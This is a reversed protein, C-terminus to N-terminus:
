WFHVKLRKRQNAERIWLSRSVLVYRAEGRMAYGNQEVGLAIRAHPAPRPALWHTTETVCHMKVLSQRCQVCGNSPSSAAPAASQHAPVHASRSRSSCKSFVEHTRSSSNVGNLNGKVSMVSSHSDPRTAMSDDVVISM